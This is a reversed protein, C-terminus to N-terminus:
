ADISSATSAIFSPAVSKTRLGMVGSIKRLVTAAARSFDDTTTRWGRGAGRRRGFARADLREGHVTKVNYAQGRVFRILPPEQHFIRGSYLLLHRPCQHRLRQWPRAASAGDGATQSSTRSWTRRVCGPLMNTSHLASVTALSVTVSTLRYSRSIAARQSSGYLSFSPTHPLHLRYAPWCSPSASRGGQPM